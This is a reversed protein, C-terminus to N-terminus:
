VLSCRLIYQLAISIKVQPSIELLTPHRRFDIFLNIKKYANKDNNFMKYYFDVFM